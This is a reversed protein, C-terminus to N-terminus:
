NICEFLLEDIDMESIVGRQQLLGILSAVLKSNRHSALTDDSTVTYFVRRNTEVGEEKFTKERLVDEKNPM